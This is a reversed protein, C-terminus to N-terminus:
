LLGHQRYLDAFASLTMKRAFLQQYTATKVKGQARLEGLTAETQALEELTADRMARFRVLEDDCLTPTDGPEAM